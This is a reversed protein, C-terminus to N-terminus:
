FGNDPLKADTPKEYYSIHMNIVISEKYGKEYDELIRKLCEDYAKNLKQINHIFRIEEINEIILDNNKPNETKSNTKRM